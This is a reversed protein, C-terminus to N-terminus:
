QYRKAFTSANFLKKQHLAKSIAVDIPAKSVIHYYNLTEYQTNRRDIRGEAQELTRWSYTQSYFLIVNTETCNWAEKGSTYQTLYVWRNSDPIPDKKHGNREAIVTGAPYDINRLIDLEYDFNYFIVVKEHKRTVHKVLGVRSDDSNVIERLSLCLKTANDLRQGTFPHKRTKVAMRYILKDYSANLVEYHRPLIDKVPVDVILKDRYYKLKREGRYGVVKSFSPNTQIILHENKFQTWYNYFGNAKFVAFYHEWKDGPTASLLIWGNNAAIELFAKTWVGTPDSLRSEDFIFFADRVNKYKTVNNWSDVVLEPIHFNVAEEEWDLSDRKTATTIVYLPVDKSPYKHEYKTELYVDGDYLEYDILGDLFKTYYYALSTRTKGSGVKGALIKGVELENIAQLQGIDLRIM